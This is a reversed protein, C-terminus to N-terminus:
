VLERVRQRVDPQRLLQEAAELVARDRRRGAVNTTQEVLAYAEAFDAWRLAQTEWDPEGVSRVYAMLFYVTGSSLSRYVGPIRCVIRVEAGTEEGVERLAAQEPTDGPAPRGKALTWVYGDFHNTPERLLVRGEANVVVGGYADATEM